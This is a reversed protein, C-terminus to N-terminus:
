LTLCHGLSCVAVFGHQQLIHSLTTKSFYVLDEWFCMHKWKSTSFPWRNLGKLESLGQRCTGARLIFLFNYKYLWKFNLGMSMKWFMKCFTIFWRHGSFLVKILIAGCLSWRNEIKIFWHPFYICSYKRYGKVKLVSLLEQSSEFTICVCLVKWKGLGKEGSEWDNLNKSCCSFPVKPTGCKVYSQRLSHVFLCSGGNGTVKGKFTWWM